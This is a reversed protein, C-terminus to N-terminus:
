RARRCTSIRTSPKRSVGGRRRVGVVRGQNWYYRVPRPDRVFSRSEAVYVQRSLRGRGWKMAAAIDGSFVKAGDAIFLSHVNKGEPNWRCLTDEDFVYLGPVGLAERWIEEGQFPRMFRRNNEWTNRFLTMHGMAFLKDYGEQMLPLCLGELDGFLLDCDCYGWWEFGVLYEEFILGYAPKFDCIDHVEGLAVHIGLRSSALRRFEDFTMPRVEVNGPYEREDDCDTFLLLTFSPNRELTRLFLSFYSHFKGFYPLILACRTEASLM